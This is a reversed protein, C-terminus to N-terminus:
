SKTYNYVTYKKMIKYIGTYRTCLFKDLLKKGGFLSHHISNNDHAM